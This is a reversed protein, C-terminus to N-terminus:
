SHFYHLNSKNDLMCLLFLFINYLVTFSQIKKFAGGKMIRVCGVWHGSEYCHFM